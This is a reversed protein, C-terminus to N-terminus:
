ELSLGPGSSSGRRVVLWEQQAGWPVSVLTLLPGQAEGAQGTTLTNALPLRTGGKGHRGQM